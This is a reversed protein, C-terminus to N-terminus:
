APLWFSSGGFDLDMQVEVCVIEHEDDLRQRRDTQHEMVVGDSAL